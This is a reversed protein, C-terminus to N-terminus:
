TDSIKNLIDKLNQEYGSFSYNSRITEKVTISLNRLELSDITVAKAINALLSIFDNQKYCFGFVELDLGVSTSCIPILGGNAMVTLLSAGGGESVSPFIAFACDYMLNKFQESEIDVFGHDYVNDYKNIIPQYFEFFKEEGKNAGCIHLELDTNTVFCDIVLDLGKHLLGSSGFWLFKNKAKDFNKKSIDIDFVDHYFCNLSSYKITPNIVTYTDAVFQNGLIVTYDACFSQFTWFDNSIRSSQPIMKKNKKYFDNVKLGSEKYSFFPNCGTSYFIKYIKETENFYFANELPYGQGYVINYVSYDINIDADYYNAVDVQFGLEDFIKAATFCELYSTHSKKIGTIFPETM